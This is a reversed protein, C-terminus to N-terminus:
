HCRGSYEDHHGVLPSTSEKARLQALDPIIGEAGLIQALCEGVRSRIGSAARHAQDDDVLADERVHTAGTKRVEQIVETLRGCQEEGSGHGPRGGSAKIANHLTGGPDLLDGLCHLGLQWQLFSGSV